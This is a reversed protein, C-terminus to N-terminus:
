RAVVLIGPKACLEIVRHHGLPKAQYTSMLRDSTGTTMIRVGIELGDKEGCILVIADGTVLGGKISSVRSTSKWCRAQRAVVLIGPKASCEIM